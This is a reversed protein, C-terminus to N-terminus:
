EMEAFLPALDDHLRRLEDRHMATLRALKAKGQEALEVRVVRRDGPDDSRRVLGLSQVRDVLQVAANHN